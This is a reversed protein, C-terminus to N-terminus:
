KGEDTQTVLDVASEKEAHGAAPTDGSCRALMGAQLLEGADKGLRLAFDYIVDLDAPRLPSM